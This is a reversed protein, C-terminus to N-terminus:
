EDEEDGEGEEDDDDDGEEEDDESRARVVRRNPNPPLDDGAASESGSEESEQSTRLKEVETPRPTEGFGEPRLADAGGLVLYFLPIRTTRRYRAVRYISSDLNQAFLAFTCALRLHVPLHIPFGLVSSFLLAPHSSIVHLSSSFLSPHFAFGAL